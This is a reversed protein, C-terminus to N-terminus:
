MWICHFEDARLVIHLDTLFLVYFFCVYCFSVNFYDWLTCIVSNHGATLLSGWRLVFVTQSAVSIKRLSTIHVSWTGPPHHWGYHSPGDRRLLVRRVTSTRTRDPQWVWLPHQAMQIGWFTKKVNLSSIKEFRGLLQNALLNTERLPIVFM